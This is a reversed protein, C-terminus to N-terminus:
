LNNINWTNPPINQFRDPINASSATIHQPLVFTTWCSIHSEISSNNKIMSAHDFLSIQVIILEAHALLPSSWQVLGITREISTSRSSFRCWREKRPMQLGHTWFSYFCIISCLLYHQRFVRIVWFCAAKSMYKFIQCKMWTFISKSAWVIYSLPFFFPALSHHHAIKLPHRLLNTLNTQIHQIWNTSM